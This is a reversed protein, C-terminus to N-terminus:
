TSHMYRVIFLLSTKKKFTRNDLVCLVSKVQKKTKKLVTEHILDSPLSWVVRDSVLLKQLGDLNHQRWPHYIASM